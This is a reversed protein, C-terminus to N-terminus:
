HSRHKKRKKKKCPRQVKPKQKVQKGNQGIFIANARMPRRKKRKKRKQTQAHGRAHKRAHKRGPKGCLNRTNQLLGKKGGRVTLEFTDVPVDPVADFTNRIRGKVADTRGVLDIDVQGHLAAVVDPLPNDSSRLIVPGELPQDLLPTSARARGYISDSPCDGAAYQVRTCVRAISGQDLLLGKPLMVIAKGVNADGPRATLTAKLGPDKTRRTAGFLRMSLKPEFGLADCGEVEFPLSKTFTTFAAPDAPNAGGGRVTGEVTKPSCNTPNLTFGPRDLRVSVSRVDLLVGGYVHPIQDSVARVQATERDVFLAVRVVVSGLDFPGATAPTVIALSLPAGNWPGTLFAKGDISIPNSGSGARVTAGGVLSSAPCSPAATEAM